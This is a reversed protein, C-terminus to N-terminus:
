SNQIKLTKIIEILKKLFEFSGLKWMEDHGYVREYM